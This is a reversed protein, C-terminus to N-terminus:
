LSLETFPVVATNGSEPISVNVISNGNGDILTYENGSNPSTNETNFNFTGVVNGSADLAVVNIEGNTDVTLTTTVLFAEM